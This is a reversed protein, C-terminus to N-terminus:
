MKYKGFDGESFDELTDLLDKAPAEKRESGPRLDVDKSKDLVISEVFIPVDTRLALAIADSPRADIAVVGNNTALHIIAYYINERLDALEVRLVTAGVARLMERLLDHTMPRTFHVKELESAIASAELVGICVPLVNKETPDKLILVPVSTYPDMTIAFVKMEIYM